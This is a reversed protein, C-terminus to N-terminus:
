IKIITLNRWASGTSRRRSGSRLRTVRLYGVVFQGVQDAAHAAIGAGAATWVQAWGPGLRGTASGLVLVLVACLRHPRAEVGDEGIELAREYGEGGAM